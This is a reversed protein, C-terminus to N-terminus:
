VAGLRLDRDATSTDPRVPHCHGGPWPRCPCLAMGPGGPRRGSCVASPGLLFTLPGVLTASYHEQALMNMDVRCTAEADGCLAVSLARVTETKGVGTPGLFLATYLPRERDSIGAQVVTLASEIHELAKGQGVIRERLHAMVVRHDFLFSM